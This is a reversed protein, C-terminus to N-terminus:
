KGWKQAARKTISSSSLITQIWCQPQSPCFTPGSNDQPGWWGLHHLSLYLETRLFDQSIWSLWSLKAQAARHPFIPCLLTGADRQVHETDARGKRMQTAISFLNVALTVERVAQPSGQGPWLPPEFAFHTCEGPMKSYCGLFQAPFLEVKLIRIDPWFNRKKKSSGSPWLGVQTFIKLEDQQRSSILGGHASSSWSLSRQLWRLDVM